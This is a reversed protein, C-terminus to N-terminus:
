REEKLFATVSKSDYICEFRQESLLIRPDYEINIVGKQYAGFPNEVIEERIIIIEGSVSTFDKSIILPTVGRAKINQNFELFYLPYQDIWITGDEKMNSITDIAKLESDTMALLNTTNKSYIPADMNAVPDTIMFFSSVIILSTLILAKQSKSKPISCILLIGIAAQIAIIMQLALYWRGPLIGVLGMILSAFIIALFAYGCIALSFGYRNVFKKSLMYFSGVISLGVNLFFGFVSLLVELVDKTSNSQAQISFGGSTSLLGGKILNGFAVFYHEAVYMWWSYMTITFLIVIVFTMPSNFKIHYLRKYTEFALYFLLLLIAMILSALVHTLILVMCMVFFVCILSNLRDHKAKFITYILIPMMIVGITMPVIVIAYKIQIDAIALLLAALLGIKETYILQGILFIFVFAIVQLISISLMTSFKYGMGTILSISSVILHMVPLKSYVYGDPIHGLELIKMTFMEHWWPDIGILSHFILQPSYRLSLAVLIIKFLSLYTYGKTKPLFLIEVALISVVLSTSVFYGFPRSYLDPRTVVSFISYSFLIVFLTNLILIMVSNTHLEGLRSLGETEYIRKRILLYTGCAVFLMIPAEIYRYVTVKPLFTVLILVSFIGLILGLTAFIRDLEETIKEIKQIM